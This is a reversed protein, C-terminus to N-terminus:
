ITKEERTENSVMYYLPILIFLLSFNAGLQTELTSEFMFSISVILFQVLLVVNQRYEKFYLIGYFGVCFLGLGVIGFAVAFNIFQNHPMLRSNPKIESYNTIYTKHVERELNGIGVGLIPNEKILKGAVKYSFVRATMSHFNAYYEYKTNRIDEVTNKIKNRFTGIAVYSVSPIVLALIAAIAIIKYQKTRYAYWAAAILVLAYFALLGSRVSLFHLFVFLFITVGGLIKTEIPHWFWQKKVYLYAVLFISMSLMLSFRVHNLPLPITKSKLYLAQVESVHSIYYISARIAIYTSCLVFVLLLFHYNRKSLPPLVLICFPLLLFPLKIM